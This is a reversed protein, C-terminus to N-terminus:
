SIIKDVYDWFPQIPLYMKLRFWIVSHEIEAEKRIGEHSVYLILSTASYNIKFSFGITLKLCLPWRHFYDCMHVNQYIDKTSFSIDLFYFYFRVPVWHYETTLGASIAFTRFLDLDYKPTSFGVNWSLLM